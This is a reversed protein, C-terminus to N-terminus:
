LDSATVEQSELWETDMEGTTYVKIVKQDNGKKTEREEVFKLGVKQGIKIRGMQQALPGRGFVAWVDGKVIVTPTDAVVKKVIEHFSGGEAKFEYVPVEEGPHYQDPVSRKGILTGFMQDGIKGWSIRTSRIENKDDFIDSM